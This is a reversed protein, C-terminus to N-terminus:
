QNNIKSKDLETKYDKLIGIVGGVANATGWKGHLAKRIDDLSYQPKNMLVWEKAVAETSFYKQNPHNGVGAHNICVSKSVCYSLLEVIAFEDGEYVPKGDETTFLPTKTPIKKISFLPYYGGDEPWVQLEDGSVVFEKITHQTYIGCHNNSFSSGVTFVGGDSLRRVSHILCNLEKLQGETFAEMIKHSWFYGGNEECINGAYNYAVTEWENQLKTKEIWVELLDRGWDHPTPQGQNKRYWEAFDRVKQNTWVFDKNSM